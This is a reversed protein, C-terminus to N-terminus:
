GGFLIYACTYANLTLSIFNKLMHGADMKSNNQCKAQGIWPEMLSSLILCNCKCKTWVRYETKVVGDSLALAGWATDYVVLKQM